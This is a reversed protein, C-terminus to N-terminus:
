HKKSCYESHRKISVRQCFFHRFFGYAFAFVCNLFLKDTLAQQNVRCHGDLVCQIIEYIKSKNLIRLGLYTKIQWKPIYQTCNARITESMTKKQCIM